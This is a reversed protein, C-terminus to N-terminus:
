WRRAAKEIAEIKAEIREMVPATMGWEEIKASAIRLKAAPPTGDNYFWQQNVWPVFEGPNALRAPQAPYRECIPRYERTFLVERGDRCTWMGYALHQRIFESRASKRM